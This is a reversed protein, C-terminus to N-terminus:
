SAGESDQYSALMERFMEQAKVPNTVVADDIERGRGLIAYGLSNYVEGLSRFWVVRGTDLDAMVVSLTGTEPALSEGQSLVFHLVQRGATPEVHWGTVILAKDAGTRERLFALGDGMCYRGNAVAEPGMDTIWKGGEGPNKAMYQISSAITSLLAVHEDVAAQEPANLAPLAVVDFAPHDSAAVTLSSQLCACAAKSEAPRAEMQGRATYHRLEFDASLVVVTEQEASASDSWVFYALLAILVLAIVRALRHRHFGTHFHLHTSM